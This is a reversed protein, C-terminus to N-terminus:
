ENFGNQITQVKRPLHLVASSHLDINAYAQEFADYASEYSICTKLSTDIEPLAVNQFYFPQHSNRRKSPNFLFDLYWSRVCLPGDCLNIKSVLTFQPTKANMLDHKVVLLMAEHLIPCM